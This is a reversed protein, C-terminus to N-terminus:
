QGSSREREGGGERESERGRERRGWGGGWGGGSHVTEPGLSREAGNRSGEMSALPSRELLRLFDATSNNLFCNLPLLPSSISRRVEQGGGLWGGRGRRVILAMLPENFNQLTGAEVRVTEGESAPPVGPATSRCWAGPNM